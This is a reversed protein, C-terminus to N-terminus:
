FPTVVRYTGGPPRLRIAPSPTTIRGTPALYNRANQVDGKAQDLEGHFVNTSEAISDQLAQDAADMTAAHEEAAARQAAMDTEMMQAVSPIDATQWNSTDINGKDDYILQDDPPPVLLQGGWFLNNYENWLAADEPEFPAPARTTTEATQSDSGGTVKGGTVLDVALPVLPVLPALAELGM